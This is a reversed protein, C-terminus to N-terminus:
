KGAQRCMKVSTSLPLKNYQVHTARTSVRVSTNLITDTARIGAYTYAPVHESGPCGSTQVSTYPIPSAVYTRLKMKVDIIM